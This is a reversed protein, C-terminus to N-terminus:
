IKELLAVAMAAIGEGRGISGLGENTTAKLGVADPTVQLIPALKERMAAAYPNIKPLEAIVTLDVNGVKWGAATVHTMVGALLHLSDADKWQADTNPFLQGIDPLGAAGLLADMLAHLLVDADSHGDPGVPSPIHVGGLMCPRGAVLRHVDYGMGVRMM